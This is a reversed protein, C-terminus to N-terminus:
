AKLAYTNICHDCGRSCDIAFGNDKQKEVGHSNVRLCKPCRAKVVVVNPQNVISMIQASEM